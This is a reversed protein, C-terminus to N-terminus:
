VWNDIWSWGGVCGKEMVLLMLGEGPGEGYGVGDARTGLEGIGFASM